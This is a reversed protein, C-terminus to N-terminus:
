VRSPLWSPPGRARDLQVVDGEFVAYRGVVHLPQRLQGLRQVHRDGDPFEDGRRVVVGLVNAAPRQSSTRNMTSLMPPIVPPMFTARSASHKPMSHWGCLQPVASSWATWKWQSSAMGFLTQNSIVWGLADGVPRIELVLDADVFFAVHGRGGLGAEAVLNVATYQIVQCHFDLTLAVLLRARTRTRHVVRRLALNM